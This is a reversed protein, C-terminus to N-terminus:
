KYDDYGGDKTIAGYGAFVVPATVQGSGSLGLVQFDKGQRFEIVQGLPGRLVLANPSQLKAGGTLTFPQFYSGDKGGPKLGAKKFESAIYDAALNIGKTTVGRGECADSALFTIDQRMRALAAEDAARSQVGLLTIWGVLVVVPWRPRWRGVTM